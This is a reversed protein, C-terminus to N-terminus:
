PKSGPNKHKRQFRSTFGNILSEFSKSLRYTRLLLRELLTTPPVTLRAFLIQRLGKAITQPPAEVSPKTSNLAETDVQSLSAETTSSRVYKKSRPQSASSTASSTKRPRTTSAKEPQRKRPQLSKLPSTKM